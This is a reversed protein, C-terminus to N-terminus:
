GANVTPGDRPEAREIQLTRVGVVTLYVFRGDASGLDSAFSHESRGGNTLSDLERARAAM